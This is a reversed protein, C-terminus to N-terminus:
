LGKSNYCLGQMPGAHVHSSACLMWNVLLKGCISTLYCIHSTTGLTYRAILLKLTHRISQGERGREREEKGLRSASHLCAAKFM